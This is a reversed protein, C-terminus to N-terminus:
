IKHGSAWWPRATRLEHLSKIMWQSRVMPTPPLPISPHPKAPLPCYFLTSSIPTVAQAGPQAEFQAYAPSCNPQSQALPTSSSAQLKAGRPINPFNSWQINKTDCSVSCFIWRFVFSNTKAKKCYQVHVYAVIKCPQMQVWVSLFFVRFSSVPDRNRRVIYWAVARNGAIQWNYGSLRFIQWQGENTRRFLATDPHRFPCRRIHQSQRRLPILLPFNQAAFTTYPQFGSDVASLCSHSPIGQIQLPKKM